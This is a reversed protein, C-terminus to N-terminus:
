TVMWIGFLTAARSSDFKSNERMEENAAFSEVKM